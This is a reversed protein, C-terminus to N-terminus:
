RETFARNLTKTIPKTLYQWVTRKGTMIDVQASMGPSVKIEQGNKAILKTTNLVIKVEFYYIQGKDTKKLLSDPSIYAVTGDFIGYISYDYADLKVAARQGKKVFTVDSTPLEAEIILKDGFPVLEMIVDGPRVRAGKTTVVINKVIADMPSRIVTRDLKIKRDKLEQERTSLKSQVDTMQAQSDQFYKNKVDALKGKLDVIERKLKIIENSGIDGSKLLPLNNHLEKKALSLSENIAVVQDNLAKQRRKFLEKESSVFKPYEKVDHPFILPKGFVEAQLRVLKAKLAAVKAKSDEYAAQAEGQELLVLRQNVKVRDGENVDIKEIVGNVAAQIKQTKATAIVRGRAHSIRDLTAFQSWIAFPIVILFLSGYVIWLPNIKMKLPIDARM